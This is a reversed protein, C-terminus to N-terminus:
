TSGSEDAGVAPLSEDESEEIASAIRYQGTLWSGLDASRCRASCFPRPAIAGAAIERKCIPCVPATM